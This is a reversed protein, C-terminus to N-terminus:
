LWADVFLWVLMGLSAILVMPENYTAPVGVATKTGRARRLLILLMVLCMSVTLIIVWLPISGQLVSVVLMTFGVVLLVIMVIFTARPGIRVATHNLGAKVDGELDRLQNFLQGYLSIVFLFLCPALWPGGVPRFATYACLFQLAALMLGHSLLDAIPVSKLRVRRWSYLFGIAVCVAGYVLPWTGLAAYLALACLAVVASAWYGARPSLRGASVPNRKAKVPTLADDPADEVDNIMFAFAVCLVNALVVGLVAWPQVGLKAGGVNVGILSTVLVFPVVERLRMLALIARAHFIMPKSMFQKM